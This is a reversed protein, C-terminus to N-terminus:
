HDFDPLEGGQGLLVYDIAQSISKENWLYRKSGKEAWPSMVLDWCGDQRMRRTANAKFASLVRDANASGVAVVAHAHNTRVNVAYLSWGRYRCTERIAREVSRRRAKDLVVPEITMTRENYTRWNKNPSIYPTKYRNHHRDISGRDDGHLWTGRCRFTILCALPIDTDNWM